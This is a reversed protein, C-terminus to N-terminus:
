SSKHRCARRSNSTASPRNGPYFSIPPSKAESRKKYVPPRHFGGREDEHRHQHGDTRLLVDATGRFRRVTGFAAIDLLAGLPLPRRWRDDRTEIAQASTEGPRM